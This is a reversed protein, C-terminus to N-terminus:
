EALQKSDWGNEGKENMDCTEFPMDKKTTTYKELMLM